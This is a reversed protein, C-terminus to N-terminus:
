TSAADQRDEAERLARETDSVAPRSPDRHAGRAASAVLQDIEQPSFFDFRAADYSERLRKVNAVPNVLLGHHDVAHEFVAHLQTVIKNVTHRGKTGDKAIRNRWREIQESTIAEIRKSGFERLLHANLVSLYDVQTSASWDREFKGTEFWEDAVDVFTLGTREQRLVGCRAEVLIAQLAAEAERKRLFGPPPSGKGAWAPGLRKEHQGTQDRWKACWTSRRKGEYLFVHGSVPSTADFEHAPM